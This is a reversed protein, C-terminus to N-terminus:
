ANNSQNFYYLEDEQQQATIQPIIETTIGTIAYVQKSACYADSSSEFGLAESVKDTFTMPTVSKVYKWGYAQLVLKM